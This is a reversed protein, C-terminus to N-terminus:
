IKWQLIRSSQDSKKNVNYRPVLILSDFFFFVFFFCNGEAGLPLYHLHFVRGDSLRSYLIRFCFFAFFLMSLIPTSTAVVFALQSASAVPQPRHHAPFNTRDSTAPRRHLPWFITRLLHFFLVYVMNVHLAIAYANGRVASRDNKRPSLLPALAKENTTTTTM